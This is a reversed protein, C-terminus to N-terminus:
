PCSFLQSRPWGRWALLERTGLPFDLPHESAKCSLVCMLSGYAAEGAKTVEGDEAKPEQGTLPSPPTPLQPSPDPPSM